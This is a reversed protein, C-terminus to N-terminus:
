SENLVEREVLHVIFKSFSIGKSSEAIQKGRIRQIEKYLKDPFAITRRQM